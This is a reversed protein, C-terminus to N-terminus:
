CRIDADLWGVISVYTDDVTDSFYAARRLIGIVQLQERLSLMKIADEEKEKNSEILRRQTATKFSDVVLVDQVCDDKNLSNLIEDVDM